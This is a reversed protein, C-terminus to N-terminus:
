FGGIPEGDRRNLLKQYTAMYPGSLEVPNHDINESLFRVSGDAFLFHCGGSHRSSFNEGASTEENIPNNGDGFVDGTNHSPAGAWFAQDQHFAPPNDTIRREGVAITNNTGDTIDRLRISSGFWFLGTWPDPNVPGWINGSAADNAPYNSTAM